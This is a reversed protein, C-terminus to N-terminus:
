KNGPFETHVLSVVTGNDFAIPSDLYENAAYHSPDPDATKNYSCQCSRTQNVVSPGSM